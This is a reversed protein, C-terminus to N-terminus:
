SDLKHNSLEGNSFKQTFFTRVNNPFKCSLYSLIINGQLHINSEEFFINQILNKEKHHPNWVIYKASVIPGVINQEKLETIYQTVRNKMPEFNYSWRAQVLSLQLEHNITNQDQNKNLCWGKITNIVFSDKNHISDKVFDFWGDFLQKVNSDVFFVLDFEEINPIFREFFIKVYSVTIRKKFKDTENLFEDFIIPYDWGLDKALNANELCDTIYFTVFEEPLNKPPPTVFEYDFLNFSCYALKM